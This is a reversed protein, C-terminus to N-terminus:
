SANESLFKIITMGGLQSSFVNPDFIGDSVFKGGTYINSGSWLYASKYGHNRYGFGNYKELLYAIGAISWDRWTDWHQDGRLADIASVEWTFPPNGETPRGAPVHTTRASLPDGNHLHKTFDMSSELNHVVGIAPWYPIDLARAVNQYREANRQLHAVVVSIEQLRNSDIKAAEFDRAYEAANPTPTFPGPEPRPPVPAPQSEIKALLDDLDIVDLAGQTIPGVIGDDDVELARQLGAIGGHAAALIGDKIEKDESKTDRCLKALTELFDAADTLSITVIM